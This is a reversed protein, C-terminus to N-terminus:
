PRSRATAALPSPPDDLRYIWIEAQHAGPARRVDDGIELAFQRRIVPGLLEGTEADDTVPVAVQEYLKGDVEVRVHPDVDLRRKLDDGFIGPLLLHLRGRHAIFWVRGSWPLTFARSEVLLDPQRNAFTWDAPRESALEGRLWGGPLPGLPGGAFLRAWLAVCALALLLGGLVLAARRM